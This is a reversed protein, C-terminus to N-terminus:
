QIPLNCPDQGVVSLFFPVATTGLWHFHSNQLQRRKGEWLEAQGFDMCAELMIVSKRRGLVDDDDVQAQSRSSLPLVKREFKLLVYM